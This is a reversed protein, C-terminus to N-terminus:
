NTGRDWAFWHAIVDLDSNLYRKAIPTCSHGFICHYSGVVNGRAKRDNPDSGQRLILAAGSDGAATSINYTFSGSNRGSADGYGTMMRPYDQDKVVPSGPYGTLRISRSDTSDYFVGIIGTDHGIRGSGAKSADTAYFSCDKLKLGGLDTETNKHDRYRKLVYLKKVACTGFFEEDPAINVTFRAANKMANKSTDYVCHGATLVTDDHALYGSCHDFGKDGGLAYRIEVNPVWGSYSPHPVQYRKGKEQDPATGGPLPAVVAPEPAVTAGPEEAFSAYHGDATMTAVPYAGSQSATSLDIPGDSSTEALASLTGTDCSAGWDCESTDSGLAMVTPSVSGAVYQMASLRGGFEGAVAVNYTKGNELDGVQAELCDACLDWRGLEAFNADYVVLAYGTLGTPVIPATWSVDISSDQAQAIVNRPADQPPASTSSDCVPSPTLCPDVPVARVLSVSPGNGLTNYASVSFNYTRSPILGTYIADRCDHGCMQPPPDLDVRGNGSDAATDYHVVGQGIGGFAPEDWHLRATGDSTVDVTFNQVATPKGAPTVAPSSTSPGYGAANHAAITFIVPQGPPSSFFAACSTCNSPSTASQGNYSVLYYDIASSGSSAPPQWHLVAGSDAAYAYVAQPASPASPSPVQYTVNLYPWSASNANEGSAFAMVAHQQSENQM